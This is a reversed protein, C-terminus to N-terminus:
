PADKLRATLSGVERELRAERLGWLCWIVAALAIAGGILASFTPEEGFVLWVWLPALPVDLLGVLGAESSPILRGGNLFLLYAFGTTTAGFIALVLMESASPMGSPVFPFCFLACLLAGLANIPAMAMSPYRRAMVLLVAFSLTMLFSLANGALDSPRTASGAMIAIGFLAGLSAILTRREIKERVWLYAVAAAVFPVTAYIVMANAVTTLKLAAVFCIMSVAAVPAALLGLRGMDYFAKPAEGGKDIIVVVLLSLASFLARWAQMTWLDLDLFRVFLGGTSWVVSAAAVLAIGRVRKGSQQL